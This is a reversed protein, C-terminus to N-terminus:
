AFSTSGSVRAQGVAGRAGRTQNPRWYGAWRAMPIKPFAAIATENLAGPVGELPDPRQQERAPEDRKVRLRWALHAAGKVERRRRAGDGAASDSQRPKRV